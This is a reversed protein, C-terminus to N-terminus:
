VTTANIGELSPRWRLLVLAIPFAAPVALLPILPIYYRAVGIFFLHSAIFAGVVLLLPWICIKRQMTAYTGIVILFLFPITFAMNMKTAQNTKGRFWFGWLNYVGVRLLLSPSKLYKAKTKEGLARYYCVEDTASYFQPFFDYQVRLGM